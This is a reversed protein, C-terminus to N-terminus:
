AENLKDEVDDKNEERQEEKGEWEILKISKMKKISYTRFSDEYLSYYKLKKFNIEDLLKKVKYEKMYSLNIGYVTGERLDIRKRKGGERTLVFILPRIDYVNEGSYKFEIIDGPRVNALTTRTRSIIRKHHSVKRAM